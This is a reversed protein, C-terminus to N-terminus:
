EVHTPEKPEFLPPLLGAEIALDAQQLLNEQSIQFLEALDNIVYYKPQMIDIRYPTRLVTQLDFRERVAMDGELAYNTEAPSSLIGGGYIKLRDCEKVLGFEVTFWYLRALYGRQKSTAAQGLKGYQETFAAFDPNTLMACHGFIEHFFDPEQLYDFEDRTRLFTAVPFRKNALLDFFRDFDILAPVPQVQWGTTEKLVKNIEPLQPVRDLPLDLLTLGHLYAECARDDIVDLQRKVLDHWIADEELSWEVWGEQSVPKSHYQTM